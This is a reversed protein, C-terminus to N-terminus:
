LKWQPTYIDSSGNEGIIEKDHGIDGADEQDQASQKSSLTGKILSKKNPTPSNEGSQSSSLNSEEVITLPDPSGKKDEASMFGGRVLIKDSKRTLIEDDSFSSQKKTVKEASFNEFKLENVENSRTSQYVM